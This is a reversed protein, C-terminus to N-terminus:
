IESGDYHWCHMISLLVLEGSSFTCGLMSEMHDLSRRLNHLRFVKLLLDNDVIEAHDTRIELDYSKWRMWTYFCPIIKLLFYAPSM